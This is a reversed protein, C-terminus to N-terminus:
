EAIFNNVSSIPKSPRHLRSISYEIMQFRGPSHHTVILQEDSVLASTNLSYLKSPVVGYYCWSYLLM